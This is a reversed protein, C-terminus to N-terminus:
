VAAPTEPLDPVAKTPTREEDGLILGSGGCRGCSLRGHDYRISGPASPRVVQQNELLGAIEGCMLCVLEVRVVRRPILTAPEAEPPLHPVVGLTCGLLFGSWCSAIVTRTSFAAPHCGM